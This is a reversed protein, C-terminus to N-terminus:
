VIRRTRRTPLGSIWEPRQSHDHNGSKFESSHTDMREDIRLANKASEARLTLAFKSSAYHRFVLFRWTRDHKLVPPCGNANMPYWRPRNFLRSRSSFVPISEAADACRTM